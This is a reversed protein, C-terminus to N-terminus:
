GLGGTGDRKGCGMGLSRGRGGSNVRVVTMDVM